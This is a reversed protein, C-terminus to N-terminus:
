QEEGSNEELSSKRMQEMTEAHFPNVFATEGNQKKEFAERATEGSVPDEEEPNIQPVSPTRGERVSTVLQDTWNM